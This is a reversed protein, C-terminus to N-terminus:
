VTAAGSAGGQAARDGQGAAGGNDVGEILGQLDVGVRAQLADSVTARGVVECQPAGAIDVEASPAVAALAEDGTRAFEDLGAGAREPQVSVPARTGASVVVRACDTNLAARQLEIGRARNGGGALQDDLVANKVHLPLADLEVPHFQGAALNFPTIINKYIIEIWRAALEGGFQGEIGSIELKFLAFEGIHVQASRRAEVLGRAARHGQGTLPRAVDEGAHSVPARHTHAAAHQFHLLPPQQLGAAVDVDM